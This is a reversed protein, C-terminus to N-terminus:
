ERVIHSINGEHHYVSNQLNLEPSFSWILRPQSVNDIIINDCGTWRKLPFSKQKIFLLVRWFGVM